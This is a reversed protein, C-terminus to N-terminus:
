RCAKNTGANDPLCSRPARKRTYVHRDQRKRSLEDRRASRLASVRSSCNIVEIFFINNHSIVCQANIAIPLPAPPCISLLFSFDLPIANCRVRHWFQVRSIWREFGPVRAISSSVLRNALLSRTHTRTYTHLLSMLTDDAECLAGFPM